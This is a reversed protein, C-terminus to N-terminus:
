AAPPRKLQLKLYLNERMHLAVQLARKALLQEVAGATGDQDVVIGLEPALTLRLPTHLGYELRILGDEMYYLWDDPQVRLAWRERYIQENHGDHDTRGESMSALHYLESAHCYHVEQGTAGARLCLDVDECGNRYATDFGGLAEFLGRRILLSAATVVQFRRSRNVAPHDAPFGVYLHRPMRDACIVMGCHQITRDPFLLKSGVIAARPAQETHAVLADLWGSLPVTDNNLFVLFRGQAVAAGDNCSVAFGRNREHRVVRIAEGYEALMSVTAEGSGDDVVIIECSSRDRAPGLLTDLCQRTLFEQNLVPIIISCDVM